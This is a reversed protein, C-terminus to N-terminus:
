QPFLVVQISTWNQLIYRVISLHFYIQRILYVDIWAVCLVEVGQVIHKGAPGPAILDVRWGLKRMEKTIELRPASNFAHLIKIPYIWVLWPTENMRSPQLM